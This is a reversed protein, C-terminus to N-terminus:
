PRRETNFDIIGRHQIENEANERLIKKRERPKTIHKQLKLDM